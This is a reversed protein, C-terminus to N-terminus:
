PCYLFRAILPLRSARPCPALQSPSPVPHLRATAAAPRVGTQHARAALVCRCLSCCCSCRGHRSAPPAIRARTCLWCHPCCRTVRQGARARLSCAIARAPMLKKKYKKVCYSLLQFLCAPSNSSLFLISNFLIHSFFLPSVHAAGVIAAPCAYAASRSMITICRSPLAPPFPFPVPPEASFSSSVTRHRSPPFDPPPSRSSSRRFLNLLNKLSHNTICNLYSLFVPM